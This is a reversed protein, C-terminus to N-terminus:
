RLQFSSFKLLTCFMDMSVQAKGSLPRQQPNIFGMVRMESAPTSDYQLEFEM